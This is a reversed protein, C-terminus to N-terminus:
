GRRLTRRDDVDQRGRADGPRSGGRRGPRGHRPFLQVDDRPRLRDRRLSISDGGRLRRPRRPGSNGGARAGSRDIGRPLRRRGGDLRPVSRGHPDDTRRPWLRRRRDTRGSEVDRRSRRAGRDLRDPLRRLVARLLTRHRSLRRRRTRALRDRAREFPTASNPNSRPRRHSWSSRGPMFVPSEEDALVYAQEATLSYRDTEPDYTVYGGAAQSRLWERVYREATDTDRALEASTLPGADDLAAYLGLEDGIIALSAHVTAGLDALSTEVLESLQQEDIHTSDAHTETAMTESLAHDYKPRSVTRDRGIIGPM